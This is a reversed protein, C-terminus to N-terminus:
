TAQRMDLGALWGLLSVFAVALGGLLWLSLQWSWWLACGIGIVGGAAALAYCTVVAPRVSGGWARRLRLPFHDRSGHWFPRGARARLVTVYATDALPVVLIALPALFGAASHETWRIALALAGLTIGTTLSGADGLYIRAPSFNFVLFGGLAGALAFAAAAEPLEGGVLAVTGLGLAAIVGVGAALGDMIDLLNFANCVALLWAAALPWRLEPPVETLEIVAGSRILVFIAVGQGAVKALPTLVGFDDILGVLLTLTGALLLGLLLSNFPLVLGLAMLYALFVALGGLYPVPEGQNKLRGDPRDVIGFRLAAQRAVPTFYLGLLVALVLVLFMLAISM